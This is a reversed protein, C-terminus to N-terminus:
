KTQPSNQNSNVIDVTPLTSNETKTSIHAGSARRVFAQVLKKPSFLRKRRSPSFVSPKKDTVSTVSFAQSLEGEELRFNTSDQSGRFEKSSSPFSDRNSKGAM